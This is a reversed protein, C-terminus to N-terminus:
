YVTVRDSANILHLSILYTDTFGNILSFIAYFSIKTLSFVLKVSKKCFLNIQTTSYNPFWPKLINIM